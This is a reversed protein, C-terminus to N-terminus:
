VFSKDKLSLFTIGTELIHEFMVEESVGEKVAQKKIRNYLTSNIKVESKATALSREASCVIFDAVQQSKKRLEERNSAIYGSQVDYVKQTHFVLRKITNANIGIDHAYTQFTKRYIGATYRRGNGIIKEILDVYLTPNQSISTTLKNSPFVWESNFNYKKISKLVKTAESNLPFRYQEEGGKLMAVAETDSWTVDKLDNSVQAWKMDCAEQPRWGTFLLLKFYHSCVIAAPTTKYKFKVGDKYIELADLADMLDKLDETDVCERKRKSQGNNVKWRGDIRLVDIPNSKVKESNDIENIYRPRANNYLANVLHMTKDSMFDTHFRAIRDHEIIIEERTIKLADKKIIKSSLRAFHKKYELITKEKLGDKNNRSKIGRASLYSDFFTELTLIEEESKHVESPNLGEAMISRFKIALKRAVKLYITRADGITFYRASKGNKAIRGHVIFTMSGGASLRLKLGNSDPHTDTYVGAKPSFKDGIFVNNKKLKDITTVTLKIKLQSDKSM